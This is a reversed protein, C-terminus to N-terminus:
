NINTKNKVNELLSLLNVKSFKGKQMTGSTNRDLMKIEDQDLHKATCVVVPISVTAPNSKLKSIVEFGNVEPMMIDVIAIDPVEQIAKSIGESGGYAYSVVHGASELMEKLLSVVMPDDDIVLVRFSQTGPRSEFAKLTELLTQKDIPKTLHNAAGVIMGVDNESLVSLMVVPIDATDAKAKLHSVVGLGDMGPMNIDLTVAFPRLKRAISLAKEGDAVPLVRYGSENLTLTLIERSNDDDEVVLVLPEDGNSDVPSIINSKFGDVSYFEDIQEDSIDPDIESVLSTHNKSDDERNGCIPVRFYFISGKGLESELWINGGHLEVINKVLALGLGTGEFRRNVASDLQVFPKFLINQDNESIGIGTDKISTVLADDEVSLYITVYGGSPTFKVSNGALNYLMQKFKGKDANIQINSSNCEYSLHINKKAALPNLISIVESVAQSADFVEYYLDMKGAEIKSIDLIDNILNLLHKGSSSINEIYRSQKDNLPGVIRETLIDSFGIVSNLPTRLEHSMNALFESKTRNASEAHIKSALLEKEAEKIASIDVFSEILVPRSGFEGPFVSKLIPLKNGNGTILIRESNDVKQSHDSIPCNGEEAPCIFQHCIKGIIDAGDLGIMRIAVNNVEIIEHNEADIVLVGCILNNIMTQLMERNERELREAEKRQTIDRVIFQVLRTNEDTMSVDVDVDINRGNQGVIFTECNISGDGFIMGMTKEFCECNKAPFLDLVHKKLLDHKKYNFFNCAKDNADQIQGDIVLLIADNSHEFLSRYKEEKEMLMNEAFRRETIDRFSLVRGKVIDGQLLPLSYCEFLHNNTSTIVSFARKSSLKHERLDHIFKDPEKINCELYGIVDIDTKNQMLFDPISWLNAIKSNLHTVNLENDLVVIGDVSSEIVSEMLGEKAQLEKNVLNM